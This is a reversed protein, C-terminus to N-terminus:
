NDHKVILIHNIDTILWARIRVSDEAISDAVLPATLLSAMGMPMESDNQFHCIILSLEVNQLSITCLLLHHFHVFFVVYIWPHWHLYFPRVEMNDNLADQFGDDDDDDNTFSSRRLFMPSSDYFELQQVPPPSSLQAPPFSVFIHPNSAKCCTEIWSTM